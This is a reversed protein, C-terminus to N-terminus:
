VLVTRINYIIPVTNNKEIDISVNRMIDGYMRPWLEAMIIGALLLVIGFLPLCLQCWFGCCCSSWGPQRENDDDDDDDAPILKRYSVGISLIAITTYTHTCIYIFIVLYFFLLLYMPQPTFATAPCRITVFTPLHYM